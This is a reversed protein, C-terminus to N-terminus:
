GDMQVGAHAGGPRPIRGPEVLLQPLEDLLVRVFHVRVDRGAEEQGRSEPPIRGKRASQREKVLARHVQIAQLIAHPRTRPRQRHVSNGHSIRLFTHPRGFASPSTSHPLPYIKSDKSANRDIRCLCALTNVGDINM